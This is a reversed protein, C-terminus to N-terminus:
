SSFVVSVEAPAASAVYYAVGATDARAVQGEARLHELHALTEGLALWRDEPTHLRGRFIAETITLATAPGTQARLAALAHASRRAHGARLQDIRTALGIFEAGHGPLALTAPTALATIRALSALHEGIPDPHDLSTLSVNPSIQPLIHDGTIVLGDHALCLHGVAHGPTWIVQWTRGALPLADGDRVVHLREPPPVRVRAVLARISQLGLEAETRSLGGLMQLTAIRDFDQGSTGAWLARLHEAEHDLLIVPATAPMAAAIAAASGIHDVHSHTLVLASLDVASIGLARLADDLATQSAHTGLGTDILCWQGAGHLLYANTGNPPFPVPLRVRWVGPAIPLPVGPQAPDAAQSARSPEAFSGTQM